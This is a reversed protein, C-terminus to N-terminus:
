DGGKALRIAAHIAAITNELAFRDSHKISKPFRHRNASLTGSAAELAELLAPAAAILKANAEAEQAMNTHREKGNHYLTDRPALVNAIWNYRAETTADEAESGHIMPYGAGNHEVGWPGPSHKVQMM